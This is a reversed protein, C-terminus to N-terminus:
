AWSTANVTTNALDPNLAAEGALQDAIENGYVNTHRPSWVFYIQVGRLKLEQTYAHARFAWQYGSPTHGNAAGELAAVNDAMTYLTKIPSKNDWTRVLYRLGDM